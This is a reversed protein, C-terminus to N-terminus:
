ANARDLWYALKADNLSDETFGSASLWEKYRDNFNGPAIGKINWFQDWATNLDTAVAGESQLWTVLADNYQDGHGEKSLAQVIVDNIQTM